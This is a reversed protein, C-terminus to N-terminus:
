LSISFFFCISFHVSIRLHECTMESQVENALVLWMIRILEKGQIPLLLSKSINTLM